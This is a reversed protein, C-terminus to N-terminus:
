VAVIKSALKYDEFSHIEMWGSSVEACSVEVGREILEQILDTLSAQYVTAAEHFPERESQILVDKYVKKLLQFGKQSFLALGTYEGNAQTPDLQMGIRKVMNRGGLSLSRRFDSTPTDVVVLDLAREPDYNKTTYTGDILLTIDSDSRLLKGLAETDFLIDSYGILTRGDYDSAACMISHLEGRSQWDLNSLLKIGDVNIEEQKYGGVVTVDGVGSQNLIEVQRQLLPKGNLDLMAMPIDAAIRKMSYEDLHDGAAPIIARTRAEKRVYIEEDRKFQAMGQLQFVTRLPVIKEEVSRSGDTALIEGFTSEIARISARLGHNAYIAMKVGLAELEQGTISYYTTPVVVLPAQGDWANVFDIVPQPSKSKNHILIADAGAEQYAYARKLAEEQGWGAILAEIRAIVMFNPDRQANKAAMIKGVFEAISALEQRVPIFSNVKPFLKDEICIAAIGAAEFKRVTAIVNNSNGYGTDCDAVIPIKVATAMSAAAALYESMTLINADPVAYSASIELGSSWVGDFGVKEALKAGLAHHAGALRIIGPRNFLERLRQKANM